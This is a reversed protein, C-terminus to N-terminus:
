WQNTDGTPIIIKNLKTDSYTQSNNAYTYWGFLNKGVVIVVYANDDLKAVVEDYKM